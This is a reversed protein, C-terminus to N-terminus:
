FSAATPVWRPKAVALVRPGQPLRVPLHVHYGFGVDDNVIALLQDRQERLGGLDFMAEHATIEVRRKTELRAVVAPKSWRLEFRGPAPAADDEINGNLFHQMQPQDRVEHGRDAGRRVERTRVEGHCGTIVWGADNHLTCRERLFGDVVEDKELTRFADIQGIAGPEPRATRVLTRRPGIDQDGRRLIEQGDAVEVARDLVAE